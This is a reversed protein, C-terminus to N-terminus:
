PTKLTNAKVLVQRTGHGSGLGTLLTEPMLSTGGAGTQRRTGAASRGVAEGSRSLRAARPPPSLATAKLAALSDPLVAAISQASVLWRVLAHLVVALDRLGQPECGDPTPLPHGWGALCVHSLNGLAQM